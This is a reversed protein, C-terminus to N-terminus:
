DVRFDEELGDALNVANIGCQRSEPGVHCEAGAALVHGVAPREVAYAVPLVPHFLAPNQRGSGAASSQNSMADGSQPPGGFEGVVTREGM